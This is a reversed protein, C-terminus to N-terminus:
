NKNERGTDYKNREVNITCIYTFFILYAASLFLFTFIGNEKKIGNTQMIKAFYFRIIHFIGKYHRYVVARVLNILQQLTKLTLRELIELNDNNLVAAVFRTLVNAVAMGVHKVYM